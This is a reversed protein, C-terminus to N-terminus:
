RDFVRLLENGIAESDDTKCVFGCAGAALAVDRLEPSVSMAIVCIHPRRDLIEALLAIGDELEPVRLDIIIADPQELEVLEIAREPTGATGVVTMRERLSILGALSQRVRRDDDVILVRLDGTRYQAPTEIMGSRHSVLRQLPM